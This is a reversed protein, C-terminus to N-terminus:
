QESLFSQDIKERKKRTKRREKDLVEPHKKVLFYFQGEVNEESVVMFIPSHVRQFYFMKTVRQWRIESVTYDEYTDRHLVKDGINLM